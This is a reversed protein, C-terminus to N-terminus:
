AATHDPPVPEPPRRRRCGATAVVSLPQWYHAPLSAARRESLPQAASYADPLAPRQTM